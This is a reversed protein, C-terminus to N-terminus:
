CFMELLELVCSHMNQIRRLEQLQVCYNNDLFLLGQTNGMEVIRQMTDKNIETLSLSGLRGGYQQCCQRVLQYLPAAKTHYQCVPEICAILSAVVLAGNCQFMSVLDLRNMITSLSENPDQLM